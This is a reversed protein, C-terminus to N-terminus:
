LLLAAASKEQDQRGRDDGEEEVPARRSESEQEVIEHEELLARRERVQGADGFSEEDVDSSQALAGIDHEAAVVPRDEQSERREIVVDGAALREGPV